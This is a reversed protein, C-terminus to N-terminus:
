GSTTLSRSCGEIIADLSREHTLGAPRGERRGDRLGRRATDLPDRRVSRTVPTTALKEQV